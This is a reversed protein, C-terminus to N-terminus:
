DKKRGLAESKCCFIDQSKSPSSGDHNNNVDVNSHSLLLDLLTTYNNRAAYKLGFMIEGNEEVKVNVDVGKKIFKGVQGIKNEKCAKLFSNITSQPMTNRTQLASEGPPTDTM